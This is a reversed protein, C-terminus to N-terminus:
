RRGGEWIERGGEGRWTVLAPGQVIDSKPIGTFIHGGLLIKAEVWLKHCLHFIIQSLFDAIVENSGDIIWTEENM